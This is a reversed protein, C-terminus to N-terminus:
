SRCPPKEHKQIWEILSEKKYLVQRGIKIRPPGIGEAYWRALTRQSVRLFQAAEHWTYFHDSNNSM